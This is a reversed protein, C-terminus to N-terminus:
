DFLILPLVNLCFSQLFFNTFGNQYGMYRALTIVSESASPRKKARPTHWHVIGVLLLVLVLWALTTLLAVLLRALFRTLLVLLRALATLLAILLGTLAALLAIL